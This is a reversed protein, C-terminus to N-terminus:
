RGEAQAHLEAVFSAFTAHTPLSRLEESRGEAVFEAMADRYSAEFRVSPDVLTPVACYQRACVRLDTIEARASIWLTHPQDTEGSSIPQQSSNVETPGSKAASSTTATPSLASRTPWYPTIRGDTRPLPPPSRCAPRSSPPRNRSNWHKARASTNAYRGCSAR